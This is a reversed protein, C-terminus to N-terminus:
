QLWALPAARLLLLVVRPRRSVPAAAAPCRPLLSSPLRPADPQFEPAGRSVGPGESVSRRTPLRGWLGPAGNNVRVSRCTPASASQRAYWRRVSRRCCRLGPPTRVRSVCALISRVLRLPLPSVQAAALDARVSSLSAELAAVEALSAGPPSPLPSVAPRGAAAALEDAHAAAVSEMEARMDGLASRM